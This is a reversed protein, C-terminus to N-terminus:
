FAKANGIPWVRMVLKGVIDSAEIPGFSRSDLSNGRNDGMVFLSGEPITVDKDGITQQITEGYPLTEDPIFGGPNETNYVYVTGDKIVLREGPLAIVRKVLQKSSDQGFSGIEKDAFVIVDGRKPIYSNGTIRSWTKPVKWVLLRDNHSLTTEMSEGDVQYSQFVFSTLFIAVLPAILIVAVTSIASHMREKKSPPKQGSGSVVPQFNPQEPRQGQPSYNDIM